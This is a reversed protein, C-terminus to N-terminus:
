NLSKLLDIPKDCEFVLDAPYSKLCSWGAGIFSIEAATCALFDDMANGVYIADRPNIQALHLALLLSEPHPKLNSVDNYTVLPYFQVCSFHRDLIQEVYWKPSSTVLGIRARSSAALLAALIGKYPFISHFESTKMLDVVNKSHRHKRLSDTPLLTDDLDFLVIKGPRTTM